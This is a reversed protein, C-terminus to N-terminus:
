GGIHWWRKNQIVSSRRPRLLESVRNRQFGEMLAEAGKKLKLDMEDLLLPVIAQFHITKNRNVTLKRFEEPATLPPALMACCMGTNDAYPAPPDGNPVTHQSWYWTDQQHPFRAMFKLLHVPWYNDHIQWDEQSMPWNAPLCIMLESYRFDERGAPANMPRDSMGSTVLTYFPRNNSPAIVHVDIHVADSVLEHFVSEIPGIHKEIHDTICEINQSDGLALEFERNREAQRFVSAGSESQEM